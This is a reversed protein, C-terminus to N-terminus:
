GVAIYEGSYDMDAASAFGPLFMQCDEAPSIPLQRAQWKRALAPIAEAPQPRAVLFGQVRDCGFATLLRLTSESEVGEACAQM